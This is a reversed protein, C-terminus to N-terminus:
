PRISYWQAGTLPVSGTVSSEFGGGPQGNNPRSVTWTLPHPINSRPIAYYGTPTRPLSLASQAHSATQYPFASFYVRGSPGPMLMGMSSIGRKGTDNTYHYVETPQGQDDLLDSTASTESPAVLAAALSGAAGFLLLSRTSLGASGTLWRTTIATSVTGVAATLAPAVVM